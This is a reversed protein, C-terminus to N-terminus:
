RQQVLKLKRCEIECKQVVNPIFQSARWWDSQLFKQIYIILLYIVGYWQIMHEKENQERNVPIGRLLWNSHIAVSGPFPFNSDTFCLCGFGADDWVSLEGSSPEAMSIVWCVSLAKIAMAPFKTVRLWDKLGHRGFPTELFTSNKSNKLREGAFVYHNGAFIKTDFVVGIYTREFRVFLNESIQRSSLFYGPFHPM